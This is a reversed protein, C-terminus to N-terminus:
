GPEGRRKRYLVWALDVLAILALGALVGGLATLGNLFGLLAAVSCLVLGFAALVARLTLASRAPSAGGFGATPDHYGPLGHEYDARTRRPRSNKQQSVLAEGHDAEEVSKGALAQRM